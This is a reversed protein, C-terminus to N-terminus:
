NNINSLLMNLLIYGVLPVAVSIIVIILFARFLQDFTGKVKNVKYGNVFYNFLYNEQKDRRCAIEIYDEGIVVSKVFSLTNIGEINVKKPHIFIFKVSWLQLKIGKLNDVGNIMHVFQMLENADILEKSHLINTM